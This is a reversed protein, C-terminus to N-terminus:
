CLKSGVYGGIASGVYGGYGTGEPGVATGFLGGALGGLASEIESCGPLGGGRGGRRRGRGGRRRRGGANTGGRVGTAFHTFSACPGQVGPACLPVVLGATNASASNAEEGLSEYYTAPQAHAENKGSEGGPHYSVYEEGEGEEEEYWEEQPGEGWSAEQAAEYAAWQARFANERAELAAAAARAAEEAARRAAEEAAVVHAEGESSTVAFTWEPTAVTFEGSPDFSNLPDDYTYAYANVSGGPIPDPQLFRGLQPVYSRAGMSIAGSPLETPLEIAGLWSYKPPLNTAPVGFETADATAALGTATESLEATAIIDGHLNTLQLVPAAGNYQIAALNGNIGGINRTWETGSSNQTWAPSAEPGSYHSIVDATKSGTPCRYIGSGHAAVPMNAGDWRM